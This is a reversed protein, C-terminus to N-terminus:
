PAFNQDSAASRSLRCHGASTEGYIMKPNRAAPSAKRKSSEITKKLTHWLVFEPIQQLMQEMRARDKRSTTLQYLQLDPSKNLEHEIQDCKARARGLPTDLCVDMTVTVV